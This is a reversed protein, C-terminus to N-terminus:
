FILFSLSLTVSGTQLVVSILIRAQRSSYINKWLLCVSLWYTCSFFREVYSIMLSICISILTLYCRVGTFMTIMLIDVFLLHQYPNPSFLVGKCQQSYLNTCGSHFVSRLKRLFNCISCHSCKLKKFNFLFFNPKTKM